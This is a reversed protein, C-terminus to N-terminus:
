SVRDVALQLLRAAETREEASALTSSYLRRRAAVLDNRRSGAADRLQRCAVRDDLGASALGVALAALYLARDRPLVQTDPSCTDSIRHSPLDLTSM